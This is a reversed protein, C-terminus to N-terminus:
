DQKLDALIGAIVTGDIPELGHNGPVTILVSRGHLVPVNNMDQSYAPVVFDGWGAQGEGRVISFYEIEPHPQGNLWYLLSGPRPRVLDVYLHRSRMATDYAEGGFFDTMLSLPFPIDTVELAQEARSTGLHPSAITILAEVNDADGRVLATRAVIGGASHGVLILPEGPHRVRIVGLIEDLLYVQTLIPAESPLDATYFKRPAQIGRGPRLQMGGPGTLYSGARQWGHKQLVASIGSADWSRDSGLYGHVLVLVDARASVGVLAAILLLWVLTKKM